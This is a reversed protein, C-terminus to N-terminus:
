ENYILGPVYSSAGYRSAPDESMNPTLYCFCMPHPKDPVENPPYPSAHALDDCVDAEPHAGSTNWNVSEVFPSNTYTQITMAHFADNVETRAFREIAYSVGGRVRPNMMQTVATAIQRSTMGRRAARALLSRTLRTAYARSSASSMALGSRRLTAALLTDINAATATMTAAGSVARGYKWVEYAAYAGIAAAVALVRHEHITALEDEYLQDIRQDLLVQLDAIQEDTPVDGVGSGLVALIDGRLGRMAERLRRNIQPTLRKQVRLYANLTDRASPQAAM